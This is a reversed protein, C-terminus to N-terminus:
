DRQVDVVLPGAPVGAARPETGYALEAPIWLRYESGPPMLRIGEALGPLLLPLPAGIEALGYSVQGVSGRDFLRGSKTWAKYTISATEADAASAVKEEGERLVRYKLGSPTAAATKPPSGLDRPPRRMQDIEEETSLFLDEEEGRAIEVLRVDLVLDKQAKAPTAFALEAPIWFRRAESTKMMLIGEGLGGVALSLPIQVRAPARAKVPFYPEGDATWATIDVTVVAGPEPTEGDYLDDGVAATIRYALGSATTVANRPPAKVDAPPLPAAPGAAPAPEKAKSMPPLVRWGGRDPALRFSEEIQMAEYVVAMSLVDTPARVWRRDDERYERSAQHVLLTRGAAIMREDTDVVVPQGAFRLSEAGAPWPSAFSVHLPPVVGGAKLRAALGPQDLVAQVLAPWSYARALPDPQCAGTVVQGDPAIRLVLQSNPFDLELGGDPLRAVGGLGSPLEIAPLAAWAEGRREFIDLWTRGPGRGQEAPSIKGLESEVAVARAGKSTVGMIYGETLKAIAPQPEPREPVFELKLKPSEGTAGLANNGGSEVRLYGGNLRHVLTCNITRDIEDPLRCSAQAAPVGWAPPAKCRFGTGLDENAQQWYHGQSRLTREAPNDLPAPTPGQGAIAGAAAAAMARVAPHWHTKALKTLAAVAGKAEHGQRGLANAAVLVIRWNDSGLVAAVAARAAPDPIEGLVWTARTAIAPRSKLMAVLRPVLPAAAEQGRAVARFLGSYIDDGYQSERDALLRDIEALASAPDTPWSPKAREALIAAVSKKLAPPLKPNKSALELYPVRREEDLFPALMGLTTADAIMKVAAAADASTVIARFIDPKRELLVRAAAVNGKRCATKLSPIAREPAITALAAPIEDNFATGHLTPRKVDLEGLLAPFVGVAEPGAAGLAAAGARAVSDNKVALLKALPAFFSKGGLFLTRSALGRAPGDLTLGTMRKERRVEDKIKQLEALCAKATPCPQTPQGADAAMAVPEAALLGHGLLCGLSGLRM